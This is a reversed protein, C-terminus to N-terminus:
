RCVCIHRPKVNTEPNAPLHVGLLPSNNLIGPGHDCRIPSIVLDEPGTKVTYAQKLKCVKNGMKYGAPLEIYTEEQLNGYLFAGNIALDHAHAEEFQAIALRLRITRFSIVALFTRMFDGKKQMRALVVLRGKYREIYVDRLIEGEIFAQLASCPMRETKGSGGM